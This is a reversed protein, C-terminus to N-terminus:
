LKKIQRAERFARVQEDSIDHAFCVPAYGGPRFYASRRGCQRGARDRNWPCPCNGPYARLSEQIIARRVEDDTMAEGAMVVSALGLAWGALMTATVGAGRRSM